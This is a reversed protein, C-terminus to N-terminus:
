GSASKRTGAKERLKELRANPGPDIEQSAVFAALVHGSVERAEDLAKAREPRQRVARERLKAM